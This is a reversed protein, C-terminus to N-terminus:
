VSCITPLTLHTYSVTNFYASGLEPQEDIVEQFLEISQEMQGANYAAVAEAFKNRVEQQVEVKQPQGDASNARTSSAKQAGGCGVCLLLALGASWCRVLRKHHAPGIM